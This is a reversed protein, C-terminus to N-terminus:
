GATMDAKPALTSILPIACIFLVAVTRGISAMLWASGQYTDQGTVPPRCWFCGWVALVYGLAFIPTLRRIWRVAFPLRLLKASDPQLNVYVFAITQVIAFAVVANALDWLAKDMESNSM